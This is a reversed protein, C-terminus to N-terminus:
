GMLPLVRLLATPAVRSEGVFIGSAVILLTLLMAIGLSVGGVYILMKPLPGQFWGVVVLIVLVASIAMWYYGPLSLQTASVRADRVDSVQIIEGRVESLM